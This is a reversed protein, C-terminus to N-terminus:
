SICCDLPVEERGRPPRYIKTTEAADAGKELSVGCLLQVREAISDVLEVQNDYHKDFLLYLQYFHSGCSALAFEQLLGPNDHCRCTPRQPARDNGIASTRSTWSAARPNGNPVASDTRYTPSFITSYQSQTDYEWRQGNPNEGKNRSGKSIEFAVMDTVNSYAFPTGIAIPDERCFCRTDSRCTSSRVSRWFSNEVQWRVCREGLCREICDISSQNKQFSDKSCYRRVESNGM